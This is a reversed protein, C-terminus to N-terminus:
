NNVKGYFYPIQGGQTCGIVPIMGDGNMMIDFRHDPLKQVSQYWNKKFRNDMKEVNVLIHMGGRTKIYTLCDPNLLKEIMEKVEPFIQSYEPKIDVDLDYFKRSTSSIQICDLALANPNYTRNNNKIKKIIEDSLNLGAKWLDRPNPTIYLALAEQPIPLGDYDYIGYAVEMQRIKRLMMSKNSTVRKLQSKDNKLFGDPVYKKRAFLCLYYQEHPLLDPLWEIFQKLAEEDKIIQYNM